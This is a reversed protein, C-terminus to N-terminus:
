PEAQFAGVVVRNTSVAAVVETVAETLPPVVSAEARLGVESQVARIVLVFNKLRPNGTPGVMRMVSKVPLGAAAAVSEFGVTANIADRLISKAEEVEGDFLAQLAEEFLARRFEDDHTARQAVTERFSRTLAM